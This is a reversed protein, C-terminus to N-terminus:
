ILYFFRLSVPIGHKQEKQPKKKKNEKVYYNQPKKTCKNIKVIM